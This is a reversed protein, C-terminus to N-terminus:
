QTYHQLASNIMTNEEKEDMSSSKWMHLVSELASDPNNQSNCSRSLTAIAQFVRKKSFSVLYKAPELFLIVPLLNRTVDWLQDHCVQTSHSHMSFLEQLQSLFLMFLNLSNHKYLMVSFFCWCSRWTFLKLDPYISPKSVETWNGVCISIALALGSCPLFQCGGEEQSQVPLSDRSNSENRPNLYLCPIRELLSKFVSFM